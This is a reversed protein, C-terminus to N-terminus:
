GGYIAPSGSHFRSSWGGRVRRGSLPIAGLDRGRQDVSGTTNVSPSLTGRDSVAKTALALVSRQPAATPTRGSIGARLAAAWELSDLVHDVVPLSLAPGPVRSLRSLQSLELIVLDFYEEVHGPGGPCQRWVELHVRRGAHGPQRARRRGRPKGPRSEWAGALGGRSAGGSRREAAGVV